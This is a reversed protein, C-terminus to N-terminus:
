LEKLLNRHPLNRYPLNFYVIIFLIYRRIHRENYSQFAQICGNIGQTNILQKIGKYKILVKIILNAYYSTKASTNWNKSYRLLLDIYDSSTKLANKILDGIIEEEM